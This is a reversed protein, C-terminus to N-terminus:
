EARRQYNRPCEGRERERESDARSSFKLRTAARSFYMQKSGEIKRNFKVDLPWSTVLRLFDELQQRNSLYSPDNRNVNAYNNRETLSWSPTPRRHNRNIDIPEKLHTAKLFKWIASVRSVISLNQLETLHFQLFIMYCIKASRQLLCLESNLIMKTSLSLM